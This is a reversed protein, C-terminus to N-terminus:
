WPIQLGDECNIFSGTTEMSALNAQHLVRKAGTSIDVASGWSKEFRKTMNTRIFGPHVMIVPIGDPKLENALIQMGMNAATKSMHHGYDASTDSMWEFSGAQSTITIVKSGKQLKGASRLAKAVRLPGVACINYMLMDQEPSLNKLKETKDWYYGANNILIDVPGNVQAAMAAVNEDSTVDIGEIIQHQDRSADDALATDLDANSERCTGVVTAGDSALERVLGLGLGRNAGTVLVRKGKLLSGDFVANVNIYKRHKLPSYGTGAGPKRHSWPWRRQSSLEQAYGKTSLDSSDQTSILETNYSVQLLSVHHEAHSSLALVFYLLVSVM